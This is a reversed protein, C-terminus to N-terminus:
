PKVMLHERPWSTVEDEYHLQFDAADLEDSWGDNLMMNAAINGFPDAAKASSGNGGMATYLRGPMLADIYPQGHTTYTIVCRGTHWSLVEMEPFLKTVVRKFAPLFRDSDGERYWQNIEDKTAVHEDIITNCGMKLYYRGNPYQVPRVLYIDAVEEDNIRYIVTPLEGGISAFDM